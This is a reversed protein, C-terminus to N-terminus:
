GRPKTREIYATLRAQDRAEMSTFEVAVDHGTGSAVPECRVIRGTALFPSGGLDLMFDHVSGAEVHAKVVLHAGGLSLDKVLLPVQVRVVGSIRQMTM